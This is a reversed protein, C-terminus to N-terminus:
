SARSKFPEATELIRRELISRMRDHSERKNEVARSVPRAGELFHSMEEKENETGYITTVALTEFEVGSDLDM